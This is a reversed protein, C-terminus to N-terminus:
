AIARDHEPPFPTERGSVRGEGLIMAVGIIDGLPFRGRRERLPWPFLTGAWRIDVLRSGAARRALSELALRRWDRARSLLPRRSQPGIRRSLGGLSRRNLVLLVVGRRSIRVAECLARLPDPVFELATVFLTVDVSANSFPLALADGQVAPIGPIRERLAGLMAPSRDLGVPRFGEGLLRRLFHGTGCGVELISRVGPLGALLWALLEQEAQATRRGRPTEYWDEYGSAHREFDKWSAAEESPVPM